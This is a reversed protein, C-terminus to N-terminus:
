RKGEVEIEVKSQKEEKVKPKRTSWRCGREREKEVGEFEEQHILSLKDGYVFKM